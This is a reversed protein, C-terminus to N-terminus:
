GTHQATPINTRDKGTAVYQQKYPGVQPGTKLEVQLIETALKESDLTVHLVIKTNPLNHSVLLQGGTFGRMADLVPQVKALKEPTLKDNMTTVKDLSLIVNGLNQLDKILKTSVATSDVASMKSELLAEPVVKLMAAFEASVKLLDTKIQGIDIEKLKERAGKLRTQLDAISEIQWTLAQAKAMKAAAEQSEKAKSIANVEKEVRATIQKRLKEREALFEPSLREQKEEDVWRQLDGAAVKKALAANLLNVVAAQKNGMRIWKEGESEFEKTEKALMKTMNKRAGEVTKKVQEEVEALDGQLDVLGFTIGSLMSAAFEAMIREGSAEPHEKAYSIADFAGFVASLITGVFPIGKALAGIGTAIKPLLRMFWRGITAFGPGSFLKPGFGRLAKWGRAFIGSKGAFLNKFWTAGRSILGPGADKTGKGFLMNLGKNFILGGAVHTLGSLLSPFFGVAFAAGAAMAIKEVYPCILPWLDEFIKGIQPALTVFAKQLAQILPVFVPGLIKSFDQGGMDFLVEFLGKAVLGKEAKKSEILMRATLDDLFGQIAPLVKRSLVKVAKEIGAVLGKVVFTAFKELAAKAKKFLRGGPGM